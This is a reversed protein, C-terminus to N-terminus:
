DPNAIELLESKSIAQIAKLVKGGCTQHLEIVLKHDDGTVTAAQNWLRVVEKPDETKNIAEIFEAATEFKVM